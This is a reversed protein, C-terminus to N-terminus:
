DLSVDSVQILVARRASCLPGKAPYIVITM